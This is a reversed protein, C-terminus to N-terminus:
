SGGQMRENKFFRERAIELWKDILVAPELTAASDQLFASNELLEIDSQLSHKDTEALALDQTSFIRRLFNAAALPTSATPKSLPFPRASPRRRMRQLRLLGWLLLGGGLIGAGWAIAQKVGAIASEWRWPLGILSIEGKPVHREKIQGQRKTFSDVKWPQSEADLATYTPFRFLTSVSGGSWDLFYTTTREVRVSAKEGDPFSKVMIKSSTRSEDITFGEPPFNGAHHHPAPPLGISESTITLIVEGQDKNADNLYQQVVPKHVQSVKGSVMRLPVRQSKFPLVVRGLSHAFDLDLQLPPIEKPPSNGRPRLVVYYLPSELWTGDPRTFVRRVDPKTCPDVQVLDLGDPLQVQLHKKFDEAYKTRETESLTEFEDANVPATSNKVYRNFGGSARKAAETHVLTFWVGFESNDVPITPLVGDAWTGSDYIEGEPLVYLRIGQEFKKYDDLISRFIGSSDAKPALSSVAEVFDFRQEHKIDTRDLEQNEATDAPPDLKTLQREAFTNLVQVRGTEPLRAIWARIGGLLDDGDPKPYAIETRLEIIGRFWQDLIVGAAKAQVAPDLTTDELLLDAAQAILDKWQGIHLRYGAADSKSAQEDELAKKQGEQPEEIKVYDLQHRGWAAQTRARVLCGQWSAKKGQWATQVAELAAYEESVRAAPNVDQLKKAPDDSKSPTIMDRFLKLMESSFATMEESSRDVLPALVADLQDKGVPRHYKCFDAFAEPVANRFSKLGPSDALGKIVKGFVSASLSRAADRARESRGALDPNWGFSVIAMKGLSDALDPSEKQLSRCVKLFEDYDADYCHLELKIRWFNSREEENLHRLAGPEPAAKLLEEATLINRRAVFRLQQRWAKIKESKLSSLAENSLGPYYRLFQNAIDEWKTIATRELAAKSQESGSAQGAFDAAAKMVVLSRFLHDRHRRSEKYYENNETKFDTTQEANVLEDLKSRSETASNEADQQAKKLVLELVAVPLNKELPSQHRNLIRASKYLLDHIRESEESWKALDAVNELNWVKVSGETGGSALVKGDASCAVASTMGDHSGLTAMKTRNITNWLNISDDSGCILVLNDPCFAVGAANPSSDFINSASGNAALNWLTMFGEDSNGALRTGDPSFSLSLYAADASLGKLSRAPQGDALNWLTVAGTELAGALSKGDPSFSIDNVEDSGKLLTASLRGTNPDWLKISGDLSSSALIPGGPSFEVATISETHAEIKLVTMQTALDWIVIQNDDTGSAM